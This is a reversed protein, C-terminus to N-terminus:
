NKYEVLKIVALEKKWDSSLVRIIFYGLSSNVCYFYYNEWIEWFNQAILSFFFFKFPARFFEKGFTVSNIPELLSKWFNIKEFLFKSLFHNIKMHFILTLYKFWSGITCVSFWSSNTRLYPVGLFARYKLDPFYWFQVMHKQITDICVLSLRHCHVKVKFTLFRVILAESWKKKRENGVGCYNKSSTIMLDVRSFLRRSSFYLFLSNSWM